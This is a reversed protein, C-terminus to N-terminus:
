AGLTPSRSGPAVLIIGCSNCGYEQGRRIRNHVTQTVPHAGCACSYLYRQQRWPRRVRANAIDYNHCRTPPLGLDEMIGRWEPGHPKVAFGHITHNILHAVEHPVTNKIFDAENEMLLVPNLRIRNQRLLACGATRGRLGFDPVALDFVRGYIRQARDFTDIIRDEVQQIIHKPLEVEVAEPCSDRKRRKGTVNITPQAVRECRSACAASARAGAHLLGTPTAISVETAPSHHLWGGCHIRGRSVSPIM